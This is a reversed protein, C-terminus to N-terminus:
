APACRRITPSASSPSACRCASCWRSGTAPPTRRRCSRSSRAATRRSATSRATGPAAPIPTSPSRRGQRRAERLHTRDGESQGRGLDTRHFWALPPRPPPLTCARSCPISRPSLAPTLRTSSTHDLQRQAEDLRGKGAPLGVDQPCRGGSRRRTPCATGSRSSETGRGGAQQHRNSGRM